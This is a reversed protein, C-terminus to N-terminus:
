QLASLARPNFVVLLWALQGGDLGDFIRGDRAVVRVLAAGNM